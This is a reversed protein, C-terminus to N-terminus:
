DPLEIILAVLMILVIWISFIYVFFVPLGFLQGEVNFLYLVPYNFALAGFLFSAILRQGKISRKM